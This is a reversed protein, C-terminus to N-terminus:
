EIDCVCSFSRVVRDIPFNQQSDIAFLYDAKQRLIYIYKYLVTSAIFEFVGELVEM